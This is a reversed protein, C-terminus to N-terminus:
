KNEEVAMSYVVKSKRVDGLEMDTLSLSPCVTPKDHTIMERFHPHRNSNKKM